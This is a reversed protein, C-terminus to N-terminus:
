SFYSNVKYIDSKCLLISYKTYCCFTGNVRNIEIPIFGMLIVRYARGKNEIAGGSNWSKKRQRWHCIVQEVKNARNVSIESAFQQVHSHGQSALAILYTM